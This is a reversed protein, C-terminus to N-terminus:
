PPKRFQNNRSIKSIFNRALIKVKHKTVIKKLKFLDKKRDKNQHPFSRSRLHFPNNRLNAVLDHSSEPMLNGHSVSIDDEYELHM